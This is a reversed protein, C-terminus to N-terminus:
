LEWQWDQYRRRLEAKLLKGTSTHPLQDVFIFGDPLQWKAFKGALFERLDASSTKAEEKLVVVAVPREQWKPHPVAIVAAERV